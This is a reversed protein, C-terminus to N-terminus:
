YDQMVTPEAPLTLDASSVGSSFATAELISRVKQGNLTGTTDSSLPAGEASYCSTSVVDTMSESDLGTIQYCSAAVGAITRSPQAKVASSTSARSSIVSNGCITSQSGCLM